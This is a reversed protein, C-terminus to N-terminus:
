QKQPTRHVDPMGALGGKIDEGKTKMTLQPTHWLGSTAKVQVKYERGPQLSLLTYQICGTQQEPYMSSGVDLYDDPSLVAVASLEEGKGGDTLIMYTPSPDTNWNHPWSILLSSSTAFVCRLRSMMNQLELVKKRVDDKSLEPAQARIALKSPSAKLKAPSAIQGSSTKVPGQDLLPAGPIREKTPSDARMARADMTFGDAANAPLMARFPKVSMMVVFSDFDIKGDVGYKALSSDLLEGSDEESMPKELVQSLREVVRQLELRDIFGDHDMEADEFIEAAQAMVAQSPTVDPTLLRGVTRSYELFAFRLPKRLEEPILLKWPSTNLLKVWCRFDFLGTKKKDFV